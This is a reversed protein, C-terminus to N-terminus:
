NFIVQPRYAFRHKRRLGHEVRLDDFVRLLAAGINDPRFDVDVNVCCDLGRDRAASRALDYSLVNTLGEAVYEARTLCAARIAAHDIEKQM